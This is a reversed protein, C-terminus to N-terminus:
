FSGVVGLTGGDHSPSVVLHASPGTPDDVPERHGILGITLAVLGFVQLLTSATAIGYQATQWVGDRQAAAALFGGFLPIWGLDTLGPICDGDLACFTELGIGGLLYVVPFVVAGTVLWPTNITWRTERPAADSPPANTTPLTSVPVASMAVTGTAGGDSRALAVLEAVVTDLLGSSFYPRQAGPVIVTMRVVLGGGEGARPTFWLLRDAGVQVRLQEMAAETPTGSAMFSWAAAVTEAPVLPVGAAGFAGRLQAEFGVPADAPSWLATRGSTQACARDALLLGMVLSVVVLAMKM